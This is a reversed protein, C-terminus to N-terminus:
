DLDALFQLTRANFEAACEINGMHAANEFFHLQANPILPVFTDTYGPDRLPDRRGAFVLAPVKIAAYDVSDRESRPASAVRFPAKFRAAATAEWAGPMNALAVRRDLYAEDAAWRPDVFMTAVIRRMHEKTGDYSNLVKRAENDPADGGGSCCVVSLMPWDPNKRAAVTLSLGGSMSSGMVHVPGVAMIELFRRIHAVRRDFQATFDFLKDTRGFGLHDPALVHYREALADINHEWTVEAAGGFEASHLLLITPRVGRHADGAELYHTRVGDVSLHKGHSM